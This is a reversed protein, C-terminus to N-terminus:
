ISIKDYVFIKQKVLEEPFNKLLIKKLRSKDGSILEVNSKPINFFNSLFLILKKNAKNENPPASVKIKIYEENYGLIEDKSSNPTLRVLIITNNENYKKICNLINESM